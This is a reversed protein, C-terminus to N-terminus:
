PTADLSAQIAAPGSLSVLVAKEAETVFDEICKM